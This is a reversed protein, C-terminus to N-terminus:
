GSPNMEFPEGQLALEEVLDTFCLVAAEYSRPLFFDVAADRLRVRLDPFSALVREPSKAFLRGMSQAIKGPEALLLRLFLNDERSM